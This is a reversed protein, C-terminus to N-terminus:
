RATDIEARKWGNIIVMLRIRHLQSAIGLEKNLIMEDMEALMVGDIREAAFIDNYQEMNLQALLLLM